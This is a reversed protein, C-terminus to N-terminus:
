DLRVSDNISLVLWVRADGRRLATRDVELVKRITGDILQVTPETLISPPIGQLTIWIWVFDLKVFSIKSFGDYDNLLFMA